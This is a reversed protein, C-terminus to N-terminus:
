EADGHGFEFVSDMLSGRRILKARAFGFYASTEFLDFCQDLAQMFSDGFFLSLALKVTPGNEV